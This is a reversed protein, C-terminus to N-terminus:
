MNMDPPGDCMSRNSKLGAIRSRCPISSGSEIRWPWRSVVIVLPWVVKGQTAGINSNALRQPSCRVQTELSSIGFMALLDDVVDRDDLRHVGLRDIVVRRDGVDVGTGLLGPLALM